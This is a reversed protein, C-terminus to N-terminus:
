GFDGIKHSPGKFIVSNGALRSPRWNELSRLYPPPVGWERAAAMVVEMYGPRARGEGCPRAVYTLAAHRRGDLQVRLMQATYLGSAVNEWADLTVRDGATIRWLLGYVNRGAAPEVSAYGDRTIVFRHGDLRALGLPQAAPAHRRMLARSMNSGYAFHMM